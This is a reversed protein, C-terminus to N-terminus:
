SLHHFIEFRHLSILVASFSSYSSYDCVHHLILLGHFSIFVLPVHYLIMFVVHCTIFITLFRCLIMSFSTVSILQHFMHNSLPINQFIVVKKGEREGKGDRGEGGRRGDKAAEEKRGEKRGDKTRRRTCLVSLSTLTGSCWARGLMMAAWGLHITPPNVLEEKRQPCEPRLTAAEGSPDPTQERRITFHQM